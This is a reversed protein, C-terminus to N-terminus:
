LDKRSLAKEKLKRDILEKLILLEEDTADDIISISTDLCEFSHRKDKIREIWQKPTMVLRSSENRVTHFEMRNFNTKNAIIFTTM